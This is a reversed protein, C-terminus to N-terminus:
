CHLHVASEPCTRENERGRASSFHMLPAGLCKCTGKASRGVVGVPAKVVSDITHLAVHHEGRHRSVEHLKVEVLYVLFPM